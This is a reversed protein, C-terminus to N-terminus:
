ESPIACNRRDGKGESFRAYRFTSAVALKFLEDSNRHTMQGEEWREWDPSDM